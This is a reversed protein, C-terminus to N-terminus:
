IRKSKREIIRALKSRAEEATTRSESKFLIIDNDNTVLKLFYKDGDGDSAEDVALTFSTTVDINVAIGYEEITIFM